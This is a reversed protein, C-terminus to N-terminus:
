PRIISVELGKEDLVSLPVSSFKTHGMRYYFFEMGMETEYVAIVQYMATPGGDLDLYRIILLDGPAVNLM